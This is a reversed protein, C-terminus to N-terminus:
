SLEKEADLYAGLANLKQDWFHEYHQVWDYVERLPEPSLSYYRCRGERRTSVLDAERLVKLHQSLAPQSMSFHELLENVSRERECLLDLISRRAPAGIARFVVPDPETM